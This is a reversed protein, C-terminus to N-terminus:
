EDSLLNVEAGFNAHGIQGIRERANRVCVPDLYPELKVPQYIEASLHAKPEGHSSCYKIWRVNFGPPHVSIFRTPISTTESLPTFKPNQDWKPHEPCFAMM